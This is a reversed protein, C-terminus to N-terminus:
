HSFLVPVTMHGLLYHTVGGLIVERLRSHGYGGMVVMDYGGEAVENLLMDGVDVSDSVTKGTSAEIGHESLYVAIDAGPIDEAKGPNASLITVKDAQALFPLADKVARAAERSGNWAVLISKGIDKQVGIYPVILVPGGAGMVVADPFGEYAGADVDPNEQGLITLDAYRSQAAVIRAMDGDGQVWGSRDTRSTARMKENFKEETAALARDQEASMSEYVDPPVQAAAFSPVYIPAKVGIATLHADFRDALTAAVDLCQKGKESEDLHVLITNISM